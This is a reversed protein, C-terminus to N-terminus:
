GAKAIMGFIDIDLERGDSLLLKVREQLVEGAAGQAKIELSVEHRSAPREVLV